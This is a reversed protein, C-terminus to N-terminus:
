GKVPSRLVEHVATAGLAVVFRHREQLLEAQGDKDPSVDLVRDMMLDREEREDVHCSASEEGADFNNSQGIDLAKGSKASM